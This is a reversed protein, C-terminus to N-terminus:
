REAVFSNKPVFLKHGSTFTVEIGDSIWIVRTKEVENENSDSNIPVNLYTSPEIDDKRSIQMIYNNSLTKQEKYIILCYASKPSYKIYDGQCSQYLTKKSWALGSIEAVVIFFFLLFLISLSTFLPSRIKEM